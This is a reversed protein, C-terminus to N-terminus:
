SNMSALQADRCGLLLKPKSLLVLAMSINLSKRELFLYLRWYTRHAAQGTHRTESFAATDINFQALKQGSTSDKTRAMILKGEPHPHEM